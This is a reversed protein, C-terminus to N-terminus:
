IIILFIFLLISGSIYVLRAIKVAPEYKGHKWWVYLLIGAIPLYILVTLLFIILEIM